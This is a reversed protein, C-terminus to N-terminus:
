VFCFKIQNKAYKLSKFRCKFNTILIYIFFLEPWPPWGSGLGLPGRALEPWVM